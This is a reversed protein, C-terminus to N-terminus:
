TGYPNGYGEDYEIWIRLQIGEAPAGTQPGIRTFGDYGVHHALGGLIPDTADFLATKLDALVDSADVDDQYVEVAMVLRQRWRRATLPEPTEDLEFVLAAPLLDAKADLSLRDSYIRTGLETQYGDAIRIATLRAIIAAKIQKEISDAM